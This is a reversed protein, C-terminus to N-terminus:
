NNQILDSKLKLFVLVHRDDLLDEKNQNVFQHITATPYEEKLNKEAGEYINLITNSHFYLILQDQNFAIPYLYLSMGDLDNQLDKGFYELKFNRDFILHYGTRNFFQTVWYYNQFPFFVNVKEPSTPYNSAPNEAPINKFEFRIIGSLYGSSDITALDYTYPISVSVSSTREDSVFGNLLRVGGRSSNEPLQYFPYKQGDDGYRLFIKEESNGFGSYFLLTYNSGIHFNTAGEKISSEKIFEGQNSLFLLKASVRDFIIITDNKVQYDEIQAFEGPGSGSSQFVQILNGFHDYKFLNDLENDEIYIFEDSLVTKMNGVLPTNERHDLLVYNISDFFSSFTNDGKKALDVEIRELYLDLSEEQAVSNIEEKSRCGFTLIIILFLVYIRRSVKLTLITKLFIKPIM